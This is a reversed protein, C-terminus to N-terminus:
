SYGRALRRRRSTPLTSANQAAIPAAPPYAEPGLRIPQTCPYDAGNPPIAPSEASEIIDALIVTVNDPAGAELTLALLKDAAEDIDELHLAAQIDHAGVNDSLGDSCVLYRDGYMRVRTTFRPKVNKGNVSKLVVSRYPHHQAEEQTIEGSDVLMQVFSDDNTFQTMLGHERQYLYARSDGVNAIAIRKDGFLVATATTGMGALEPSADVAAAIAENSEEIAATLTVYFEPDITQEDITAFHEATIASAVEGAEHGGTGDAVVVLRNGVHYSDENNARKLGPHTRATAKISYSM